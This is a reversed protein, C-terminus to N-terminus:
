WCFTCPILGIYNVIKDTFDQIVFVLFIVRVFYVSLIDTFHKNLCAPIDRISLRNYSYMDCNTQRVYYPKQFYTILYAETYFSLMM